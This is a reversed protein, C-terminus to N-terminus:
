PQFSRKDALERLASESLSIPELRELLEKVDANRGEIAVTSVVILQYPIQNGRNLSFLPFYM